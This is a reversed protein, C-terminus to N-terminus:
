KESKALYLTRELELELKTGKPLTLEHGLGSAMLFAAAAGAAAGIGAAKPSKGATAGAVAGVAAGAAAAKADDNASFARAEIEGEKSPGPKVSHEGPVSVVEAVIPLKGNKTKIEDFTLWIKARGTVGAPEVRSVHGLIETGPPVVIGNESELPELTRVKFRDNDKANKTSLEDELKVLFRTGPPVACVASSRPSSSEPPKGPLQDQALLPVAATVFLAVGLTACLASRGRVLRM